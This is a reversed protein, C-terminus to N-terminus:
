KKKLLLNLIQFIEMICIKVQLTNICNRLEADENLIARKEDDTINELKTGFYPYRSLGGNQMTEPIHREVNAVVKMTQGVHTTVQNEINLKEYTPEIDKSSSSTSSNSNFTSNDSSSNSSYSNYSTSNNDYSDTVLSSGSSDTSNFSNTSNKSSFVPTSCSTFFLSM